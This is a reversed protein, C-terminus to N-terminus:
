VLPLLRPPKDSFRLDAVRDLVLVPLVRGIFMMLMLWGMGYQYLDVTQTMGISLNASTVTNVVGTSLSAGGVASSADLLAAAFTPPTQFRSGTYADILLLGLAVVLTLTVTAGVCIVAALLGRRAAEHQSSGAGYGSLAVGSQLGCILMSWRIGGGAAGGMGGVLVVLALVFLTGEGVRRESLVETSVGAGSASAVQVLSRVFRVGATHEALTGDSRVEGRPAERPTEFATVLGACLVLFVLYSSVGAVLGSGVARIGKLTVLLWVAWGLAGLLAVAAYVATNGEGPKDLSWGLSSFASVTQWVTAERSVMGGTGFLEVALVVVILVAQWAFFILLVRAASPPSAGSVMWLRAAAQRAAVLYFAAGLVGLAALAWRGLPTYDEHLNHMLLGVGCTASLADFSAQWVPRPGYSYRDRQSLSLCREDHLVHGGVAGLIVLAAPFWVVPRHLLKM